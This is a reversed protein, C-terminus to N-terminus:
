SLELRREIREIRQVIRDLSIQQRTDTEVGQVIQRQVNLFSEDLSSMREKLDHVDDAVRDLRARIHRLHELILNETNDTM